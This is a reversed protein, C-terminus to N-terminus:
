EPFTRYVMYFGDGDLEFISTEAKNLTGQWLSQFAYPTWRLGTGELKKCSINFISVAQEPHSAFVQKGHTVVFYGQNTVMTVDVGFERVYRVLLSINALTHDERKGTSGLLCIRHVGKSLCHRLAKTQDNDDQESVHHWIPAYKEKFESSLSDGDGVIAQPMIGQEICRQGAGDCCCLYLAHRLLHLPTPHSPFDGDCLIIAEFRSAETILPFPTLTSSM